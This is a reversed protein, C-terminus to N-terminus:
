LEMLADIADQAKSKIKKLDDDATKFYKQLCDVYRELLADYHKMETKYVEIDGESYFASSEDPKTPKTPKVCDHSPYGSIGLNSGAFVNGNISLTLVGLIISIGLAKKM